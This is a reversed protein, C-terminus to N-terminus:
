LFRLNASQPGKGSFLITWRCLLYTESSSSLFPLPSPTVIDFVWHRLCHLRCPYHRCCLSLRCQLHLFFYGNDTLSNFRPVLYAYMQKTDLSLISRIWSEFLVLISKFLGLDIKVMKIRLNMCGHVKNCAPKGMSSLQRNWCFSGKKSTLNLIEFM